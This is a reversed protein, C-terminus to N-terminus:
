QVVSLQQQKGCRKHDVVREGVRASSERPAATENLAIRVSCSSRYAHSRRLRDFGLQRAADYCTERAAESTMQSEKQAIKTVSPKGPSITGAAEHTGSM